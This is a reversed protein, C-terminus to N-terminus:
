QTLPGCNLGQYDFRNKEHEMHSFKIVAGDQVKGRSDLDLEGDKTFRPFIVKMDKERFRPTYPKPIKSYVDRATQWLGGQGALQVNTRRFMVANYKSDFVYKLPDLILTYSKGSNGTVFAVGNQRVVFYGTYTHFCYKYGDTTPVKSAILNSMPLNYSELENSLCLLEGSFGGFKTVCDYILSAPLDKLEGNELYSFTHDECVSIDFDESQFRILEKAPIATLKEPRIFDISHEDPFYNAILMGEEYDSFKVWGRDTLFETEIGLCGAAGGIVTFTARNDLMMAQRESCPEFISDTM